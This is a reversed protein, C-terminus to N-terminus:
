FDLFNQVIQHTENVAIGEGESMFAESKVGNEPHDEWRNNEGELVNRSFLSAVQSMRMGRTFFSSGPAAIKLRIKGQDEGSSRRRERYQHTIICQSNDIGTSLIPACSRAVHAPMRLCVWEWVAMEFMLVAVMEALVIMEGALEKGAQVTALGELAKKWGM